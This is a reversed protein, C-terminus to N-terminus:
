KEGTRWDIQILPVIIEEIRIGGHTVASIAKPSLFGTRSACNTASIRCGSPLWKFAVPSSIEAVGSRLMTDKYVRV